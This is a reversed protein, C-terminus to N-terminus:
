DDEEYHLEFEKALDGIKDELDSIEKSTSVKQQDVHETERDRRRMTEHLAELKEELEEPQRRDHNQSEELQISRNSLETSLQKKDRLEKRNAKMRQVQFGWYNSKAVEDWGILTPPGERTRM